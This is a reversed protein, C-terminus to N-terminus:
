KAKKRSGLLGAGSFIVLGLITAPEPVDTPAEVVTGDPLVGWFSNMSDIQEQTMTSGLLNVNQFDSGDFSSGTFDMFQFSSDIVTTDTFDTSNVSACEFDFPACTKATALSLSAEQAPDTMTMGIITAGTFNVRSFNADQALFNKITVGSFNSDEFISNTVTLDEIYSDIFDSSAFSSEEITGTLLTSSSFDTASANSNEVLFDFASGSFDEGILNCDTCEGNTNIFDSVDDPNSALVLDSAVVPHSVSLMGISALFLLLKQKPTM